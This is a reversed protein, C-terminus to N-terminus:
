LSGEGVVFEPLRKTKQCGEDSRCSPHINRKTMNCTLYLSVRLEPFPLSNKKSPSMVCSLFMQVLFFVFTLHVRLTNNFPERTDSELTVGQHREGFEFSGEFVGNGDMLNCNVGLIKESKCRGWSLGARPKEKRRYQRSGTQQTGAEGFGLSCSLAGLKMFSRPYKM